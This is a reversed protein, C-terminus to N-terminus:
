AAIPGDAPAIGTAPKTETLGSMSWDLGMRRGDREFHSHAYVIQRRAEVLAALAATTKELGTQGAAAAFGATVRGEFITGLLATLRAGSADLQHESQRLEHALVSAFANQDTATPKM